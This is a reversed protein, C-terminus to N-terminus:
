SNSNFIHKYSLPIRLYNQELMKMYVHIDSLSQNNKNNNYIEEVLEFFKKYNKLYSM